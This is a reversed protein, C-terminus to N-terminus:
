AAVGKKIGFHVNRAMAVINKGQKSSRTMLLKKRRLGRCNKQEYYIRGEHTVKLFM